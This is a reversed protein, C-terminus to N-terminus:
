KKLKRRIAIVGILSSGFLLAAGPIPTTTAIQNITFSGTGLFVGVDLTFQATEGPQVLDDGWFSLEIGDFFSNKTVNSDWAMINVSGPNILFHYDTWTYPTLNTVNFQITYTDDSNVIIEKEFFDAPYNEEVIAYGGFSGLYPILFDEGYTEDVVSVEGINVNTINFNDSLDTDTISVIAGFAFSSTMLVCLFAFVAFLKSKM